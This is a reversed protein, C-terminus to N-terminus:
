MIVKVFEKQFILGLVDIQSLTKELHSERLDSVFTFHSKGKHSADIRWLETMETIQLQGPM